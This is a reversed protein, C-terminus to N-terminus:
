CLHIFNHLATETYANLNIYYVAFQKYGDTGNPIPPPPPTPPQPLTSLLTSYFFITGRESVKNFSQM